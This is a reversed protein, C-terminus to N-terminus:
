LPDFKHCNIALQHTFRPARAPGTATCVLRMPPYSAVAGWHASDAWVISVRNLEAFRVRLLSTDATYYGDEEFFTSEAVFVGRLDGQLSTGHSDEATHNIRCSQVLICIALATLWPGRGSVTFAM